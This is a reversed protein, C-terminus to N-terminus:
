FRLSSKEPMELDWILVLIHKDSLKIAKSVWMKKVIRCVEKQDSDTVRMIKYNSLFSAM